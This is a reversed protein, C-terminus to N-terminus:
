LGPFIRCVRLRHRQVSLRMKAMEGDFPGCRKYLGGEEREGSCFLNIGWGVASIMRYRGEM